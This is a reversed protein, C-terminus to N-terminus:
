DPQSAMNLNKQPRPPRPGFLATGIRVMTSGARVAAELDGSMGISVERLGLERAIAVVRRFGPEPDAPPPPGIAMLGEVALDLTGLEEVLAATERTGVGARGPVAGELLDVQVFIKAGPSHRAITDGVERRDVSQWTDVHTAIKGAKNRQIGGLFHLRAGSQAAAAAKARLEQAYNEGIDTCGAQTAALVAAPGFGKTVAIVRVQEPDGGAGRIRSRVAALQPAISEATLEAM